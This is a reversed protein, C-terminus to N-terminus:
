YSFRQESAGRELTLPGDRLGQRLVRLLRMQEDAKLVEHPSPRNTGPLQAKCVDPLARSGYHELVATISM